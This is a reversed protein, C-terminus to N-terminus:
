ADFFGVNIDITKEEDDVSVTLAENEKVKIDQIFKIIEQNLTVPLNDVVKFRDKIPLEQFKLELEDFKITKIYKIIEYTYINGINKGLETEGEKKVAEISAQVIKSEQVITPIEIVVQIKDDITKTTEFKLAKAKELVEELNIEHGDVKSTKGIADIRLKLIIPLKDTIKLDNNGTNTTIIENIFKAFKLAGLSGDAITGILEKQQKFSLPTSDIQKGTSLVHVKSKTEKLEQIKDLFSKVNDEM